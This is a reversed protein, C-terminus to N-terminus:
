LSNIFMKLNLAISNFRFGMSTVRLKNSSNDLIVILEDNKIDRYIYSSFGQWGGAHEVSDDSNIFWGYGYKTKEGNNLIAPVYAKNYEDNSILTGEILAKHWLYLDYASSYIGGDGVVGDFYNLDQPIKKKGFLWYKYKYGYVRNKPEQKSLLNFVQSNNMKLPKFINSAMFEYFSVGSVRAIIEALLIYGTNSYQFKSGAEFNLTPKYKNYIFLMKEVTFLNHDKNYKQALEMYDPLGSTHHLLQEITITEYYNLEPLYNSIKDSYNLKSQTKLIMIGTATFQKSVSALNFSSHETLLNKSNINDNGYAKSFIIKGQKSLLVVGNFKDKKHISKLWDNLAKIKDNKTSDVKIKLKQIRLTNFVIFFAIFITVLGLIIAVLFM